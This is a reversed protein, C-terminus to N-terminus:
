KKIFVNQDIKKYSNSITGGRSISKSSAGPHMESMGGCPRLLWHQLHARAGVNKVLLKSDQFLPMLRFDGMCM